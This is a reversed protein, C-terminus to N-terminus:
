MYSALHRSRSIMWQTTSGRNMMMRQSTRPLWSSKWQSPPGTADHAAGIQPQSAATGQQSIRNLLDPQRKLEQEILSMRDAERKKRRQCSRNPFKKREVPFGLKWPKSGPTTRTQGPHEDNGLACTLEDKERKPHFRGEEVDKSASRLADIPLPDEDYKKTYVCKGESDLKGGHGYFWDMSRDNWKLTELIIGKAILDDEMKKWKPKGSKYGGQGMTHHYKKTAANKKNIESRRKAAESTKYEVFAGWHDKIKEYQGTFVLTKEKKVFDKYLRKKWNNFQLAMKSLTWKKVKREIINLHRDDDNSDELDFHHV